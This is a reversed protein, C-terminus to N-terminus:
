RPNGNMSNVLFLDSKAQKLSQQMEAAKQGRIERMQENRRVQNHFHKVQAQHSERMSEEALLRNHYM